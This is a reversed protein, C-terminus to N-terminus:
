KLGEQIFRLGKEIEEQKIKNVKLWDIDNLAPPEENEMILHDALEFINLLSTFRDSGRKQNCISIFNKNFILSFATGHFSDTVIFEADRFYALWEEIKIGGKRSERIYVTSLGKEKAIQNVLHAKYDNLDLIYAVLIGAKPTYGKCLDLYYDKEILLTPDIVQVTTINLNDQCLKIASLERVSVADFRAVLSKCRETVYSPYNWNSDGFSVAYALRKCQQSLTFELFVDYIEYKSSTYRWVQDSGVIYADYGLLSENNNYRKVRGTLKINKALFSCIVPNRKYTDAYCIKKSIISLYLCRAIYRLFSPSQDLDITTPDHGLKKLAQQMAYNQLIGGFNSILPLTIIAIRM